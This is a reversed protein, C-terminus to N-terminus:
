QDPLLSSHPVPPMGEEPTPHTRLYEIFADAQAPTLQLIRRMAEDKNSIM